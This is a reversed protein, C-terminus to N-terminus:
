LGLAARMEPTLNALAAAAEASPAAPAASPAVAAAPAAGGRTVKVDFLKLTKGGPRKEVGTLTVKIHDGAEPRQEALAVKLRIQGATMTKDEGTADDVLLIQPVVKGDDFTHTRVATITGSITDGIADFKIYDGGAALEPSDWISSMTNGKPNPQTTSTM